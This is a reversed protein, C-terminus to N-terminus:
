DTYTFGGTLTVFETDSNEIRIDVAGATSAPPSIVRIRGSNYRYYGTAQNPGFYVKTDTQFNEGLIFVITNGTKRGTNPSVSTIAPVPPPPPPLYTFANEITASSSDPNEITINVPGATTAPPSIIRFRGSNYRYYGTGENTGFYVKANAEFNTGEIFVITSGELQGEQPSVSTITPVVLRYSFGGALTFFEGDPNVIKVDVPGAADGPPSIVRVKTANYRYYGTAKKSGFYVEGGPAFHEGEIFIAEGGSMKGESPNVLTIVPTPPPPPEAYTYGNPLVVFQEDPNVVKVDVPGPVDAAPSIARLRTDNYRYYGTAKNAGLYVSGGPQFNAGDIFVMENGTMQGESPTVATIEPAPLPPPENYTFGNVAIVFMGDPNAVKVDVPGAADAAPSVVRLRGDNYRYYGAVKNVGFYVESGLAFNAGEIHVVENGTILGENPSISTIQPEPGIPTPPEIYTFGGVLIGEQTDPNVVKVDVPGLADGVPTMVRIKTDSYRYYGGAKKTGFYVESGLAFNSGEIHVVENGELVGENPSVLTIEPTPGTPTPPEIYTFGGALIGEQTDPNVVKVDVPGLADGAPTTVRIKTDSHRYYGGAKKTGFYVESGLAFNSGEIHIVENGELVGENPSVLTIEPAPDTPAPPEKYTFGGALITYQGDSNVVKVDVPGATDSAPTIIRIETENNYYYGTGKNLGFYVEGHLTFNAGQIHVIENGVMEGENPTILTIEPSPPLEYTFGNEVTVSTGDPNILQVNVVIPAPVEPTTVSVSTGDSSVTAGIGQLEGFKVQANQMFYQGVIQVSTGGTIPGVAPDITNIIPDAFYRFDATAFQGDDNTVTISTNGQQGAPVVVKLQTSDVFEQVVAETDGFKVILGPRFHEGSITIIDGGAVNSSDSSLSIINPPYQQVTISPALIDENIRTDTYDLYTINSGSSVPLHGIREGTKHRIRYKFILEEDKLEQFEWTLTNGLVTPQPINDIYSDPIIEFEPSVIDTLTVDYASAKGIEDVIRNYIEVLGTSGLVFHHHQATTAMEKLLLNPGSTDPDEGVNLLAITYFVIDKEKAAAAAQKAYDYASVPGDRPITADGDTLLVIIPQADARKAELLGVATNIADGTATGGDANITDIHAKVSAVDTTLAFSNTMGPNSFDVVGVRHKSMDMLDIFGKAAEKANHIKDEGENPAHNPSMSGSKDIILIVDNPVIVNVPSSGQVSLIVEAEEDVFISDPNITKNVTVYSTAAYGLSFPVLLHFLLFISLTLSFLRNKNYM